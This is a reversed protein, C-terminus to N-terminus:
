GDWDISPSSKDAIPIDFVGASMRGSLKVGDKESATDENANDGKIGSFKL